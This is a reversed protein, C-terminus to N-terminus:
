TLLRPPTQGHGGGVLTRRTNPQVRIPNIRGQQAALESQSEKFHHVGKYSSAKKEIDDRRNQQSKKFLQNQNGEITKDKPSTKTQNKLDYEVGGLQMMTPQVLSPASSLNHRGEKDSSSITM